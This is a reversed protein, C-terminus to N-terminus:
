GLAIILGISAAQADGADVYATTALKTSNDGASHTTGTVATAISTGAFQGTGTIDNSNLDLDGGLQPSTDEVVNALATITGFSLVGSGNTKLYQGSSGDANPFKIGDLIVNKTGPPTLTIDGVNDLQLLPQSGGGGNPALKLTGSGNTTITTDTGSPGVKIIDSALLVDGTGHPTVVVDANGVSVISNSSSLQLTAQVNGSFTGSGTINISGTGAINNNNLQLEGGLQPSTDDVLNEMDDSDSTFLENIAGVVSAKHTTSLTTLDGQGTAVTNTKVRWEDFTDGLGVSVIAM